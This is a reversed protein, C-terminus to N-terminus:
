MRARERQDRRVIAAVPRQDHAPVQAGADVGSEGRLIEGRLRPSRPSCGLNARLTLPSTLPVPEVPVAACRGHPTLRTAAAILRARSMPSEDGGSSTERARSRRAARRAGEGHGGHRRPSFNETDETGRHRISHRQSLSAGPAASEQVAPSRVVSSGSLPPRLGPAPLARRCRRRQFPWDSAPGDSDAEDAEAAFAAHQQRLDIGGVRLDEREGVDIGILERLGVLDERLRLAWRRFVVGLPLVHDAVLVDLRTTMATGSHACASM